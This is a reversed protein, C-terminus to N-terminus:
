SLVAKDWLQKGFQWCYSFPLILRPAHIFLFRTVRSQIKLKSGRLGDWQPLIAERIQNMKEQSCKVQYLSAYQISITRAHLELHYHASEPTFIDSLHAWIYDHVVKTAALADEVHRISLGKTISGKRRRYLIHPDPLLLVGNKCREFVRYTVHTDEYLRGVPFRLNEWISQKYLKNWVITWGYSSSVLANLAEFSTLFQQKGPTFSKQENPKAASFAKETTYENYGCMVTDTQSHLLADLMTKIMEPMFADDSDLFAVYEGTMRDLATNRAGSLGKNEQHIVIVRPDSLYEDCVEGSGDTSGDDVILIELNKYTQNIVSDLAERLYPLVNYVPVIVSVLPEMCNDEKVM